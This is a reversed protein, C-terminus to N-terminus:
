FFYALNLALSRDTLHHTNDSDLGAYPNYVINNLGNCAANCSANDPINSDVTDVQYRWSLGLSFHQNFLYDYSLTAAYYRGPGDIGILEPRSREYHNYGGSIGLGPQHHSAFRPAYKVELGYNYISTEQAGLNDAVDYSGQRYLIEAGAQWDQAFRAHLGLRDPSTDMEGYTDDFHKLSGGLSLGIDAASASFSLTLLVGGFLLRM